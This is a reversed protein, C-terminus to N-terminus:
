DNDERIREEIKELIIINLTTHQLWYYMIQLINIPWIITRVIAQLCFYIVRFKNIKYRDDSIYNPLSEQLEFARAIYEPYIKPTLILDLIFVLLTIFIGSVIWIAM